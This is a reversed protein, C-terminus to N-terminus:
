VLFANMPCLSMDPCLRLAPMVISHGFCSQPELGYLLILAPRLRSRHRVFIACICAAYSQLLPSRTVWLAMPRSETSCLFILSLRHLHQHIRAEHLPARPRPQAFLAFRPFRSSTEARPELEIKKTWGIMLVSCGSFCVFPKDHM